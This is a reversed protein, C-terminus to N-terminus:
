LRLDAMMRRARKASRGTLRPARPPELINFYTLVEKFIKTEEPQNQYSKMAVLRRGDAVLTDSAAEFLTKSGNSVDFPRVRSWLDIVRNRIEAEQVVFAKTWGTSRIKGQRRLSEIWIKNLEGIADFVDVYRDYDDVLFPRHKLTVEGSRRLTKLDSKLSKPLLLYNATKLIDWETAYGTYQYLRDTAVMQVRGCVMKGFNVVTPPINLTLHVCEDFAYDKFKWLNVCKSLNVHRLAFCEAFANVGIYKLDVCKSFDVSLLNECELFAVDDIGILTSPLKVTQIQHFGRFASEGIHTVGEPIEVDPQDLGRTVARYTTVEM